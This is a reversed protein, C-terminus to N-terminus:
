RQDNLLASHAPGAPAYATTARRTAALDRLRERVAAMRSHLLAEAAAHAERADRAAERAEASGSRMAREARATADTLLASLHCLAEVDGARVAAMEEAALQRLRALARRDEPAFREPAAM